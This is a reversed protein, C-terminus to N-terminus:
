SLNKTWLRVGKENGRPTELMATLAKLVGGDTNAPIIKDAQAKILPHANKPAATHACARLLEVDNMQDGFALSEERKIHFFAQLKQIAAGKHATPASVDCWHGGSVTLKVGDSYPLLAKYGQEIASKESFVSIKCCPVKGIVEDLNKVLKYSAYPTTTRTFFPEIDNEIYAIKDSCLIPYAGQTKRVIDLTSKVKEPALPNLLLTQGQYRVLAGNEMIFACQDKVPAFMNELNDAQRGSAPVFLVGREFLRRVIPFIEQPLNGKQDLLTGDLDSAILKIM